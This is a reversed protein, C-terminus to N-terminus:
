ARCIVCTSSANTQTCAIWSSGACRVKQSSMDSEYQKRARSLMQYLSGNNYYETVVLPPRLCVGCFRVVNPHMTLTTLTKVEKLLAAQPFVFTNQFTLLSAPAPM